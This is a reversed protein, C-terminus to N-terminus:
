TRAMLWQGAGENPAKRCFQDVVFAMDIFLVATPIIHVIFDASTYGRIISGSSMEM